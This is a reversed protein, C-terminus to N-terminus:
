RSGAKGPVLPHGVSLRDVKLYGLLSTQFKGM